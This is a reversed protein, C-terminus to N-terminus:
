KYGFPKDQQKHILPAWLRPDDQPRMAGPGPPMIVQPPIAPNNMYIPRNTNADYTPFYDQRGHDYTPYGSYPAHPDRIPATPRPAYM